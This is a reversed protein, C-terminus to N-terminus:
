AFKPRWSYNLSIFIETVFYKEKYKKGKLIERAAQVAGTPIVIVYADTFDVTDPLVTELGHFEMRKYTDIAYTCKANPYNGTIYNWVIEANQTIGWLIYNIEEEKNWKCKIENIVGDVVHLYYGNQPRYKRVNYIEHTEFDDSFQYYKRMIRFSIDRLIIKKTQEIDIPQPNWNIESYREPTYIPIFKDIWSFTIFPTKRVLVVPIGWAICPAALHLRSTVILKANDYYEKYQGKVLENIQDESPFEDIFYYEHTKIIAKSVLEDPVSRMVEVPVDVFYVNQGLKEKKTPLTITVCGNIFANIGMKKLMLFQNEDRCGVDELSKLKEVEYESQIEYGFNNYGICVVHLKPSLKYLNSYNTCIFIAEEGDYIELEKESLKIINSDDVGMWNLINYVAYFQIYEGINIRLVDSNNLIFDKSDIYAFKM